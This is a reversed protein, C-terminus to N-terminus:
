AIGAPGGGFMPPMNDQAPPPTIAGFNQEFKDMNENLAMLLQKAHIPAMIVRSKVTAKPSGPLMQIFDLIFEAPSHAIAVINCYTGGAVEEPLDISFPPNNNAM